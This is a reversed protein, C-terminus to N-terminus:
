IFIIITFFFKCSTGTFITIDDIAIDSMYTKGIVAEFIVVFDGSKIRFGIIAEHWLEGKDGVFIFLFMLSLECGVMPIHEM